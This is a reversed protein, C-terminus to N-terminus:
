KIVFNKIQNIEDQILQNPRYGGLIKDLYFADFSSLALGSLTGVGGLGLSDLFLGAGTFSAWRLLKFPLKEAWSDKIISNYYENIINTNISENQLWKRFHVSQNYLSIYEDFLNSNENICEKLTRCSNFIVKQFLEPQQLSNQINAYLEKTKYTIIKHTTQTCLLDSNTDAADQLDVLSNIYEMLVHVIDM